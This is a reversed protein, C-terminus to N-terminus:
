RDGRPGTPGSPQFNNVIQSKDRDPGYNFNFNSQIPINVLDAVPNQTEKALKTDNDEAAYLAASFLMMVIASVLTTVM